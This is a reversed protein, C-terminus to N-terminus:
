NIIYLIYIGDYNNNDPNTIQKIRNNEIVNNIVGSESYVFKTTNSNYNNPFASLIKTFNSSNSLLLNDKFENDHIELQNIHYTQNIIQNTHYTQNQNRNCNYHSSQSNDDMLTKIDIVLNKCKNNNHNHNIITNTNKNDLNSNKSKVSDISKITSKNNSNNISQSNYKSNSIPRIAKNAISINNNMNHISNGKHNHINKSHTLDIVGKDSTIKLKINIKDDFNVNKDKTDLNSYNPQNYTNNFKNSKNSKNPQMTVSILENNSKINRSFNRKKEILILKNINREKDIAQKIRTNNSKNIINSPKNCVKEVLEKNNKIANIEKNTICNNEIKGNLLKTEKSKKLKSILHKEIKLQHNNYLQELQYEVFNSNKSEIFKTKNEDSNNCNINM